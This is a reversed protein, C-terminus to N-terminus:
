IAQAPDFDEGDHDDYEEPQATEADLGAAELFEDAQEELQDISTGYLEPHERQYEGNTADNLEAKLAEIRKQVEGQGMGAPNRVPSDHWM